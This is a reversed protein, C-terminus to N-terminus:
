MHHVDARVRHLDDQDHKNRYHETIIITVELVCGSARLLQEPGDPGGVAEESAHTAM